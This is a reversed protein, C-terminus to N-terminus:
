SLTRDYSVAWYHVKYGACDHPRATSREVVRHMTRDTRHVMYQGDWHGTKSSFITGQYPDCGACDTPHAVVEVDVTVPKDCAPCKHQEQRM